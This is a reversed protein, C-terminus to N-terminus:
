YTHIYTHYPLREFLLEIMDKMREDVDENRKLSVSLLVLNYTHIHTSTHIYTRIFTHIYTHIYKHIYIPWTQIHTTKAHILVTEHIYTNIRKVSLITFGGCFWMKWQPFFHGVGCQQLAWRRELRWISLNTTGKKKIYAYMCVYLFQQAPQCQFISTWGYM